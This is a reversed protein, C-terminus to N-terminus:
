LSVIIFIRKQKDSQRIFYINMIGYQIKHFSHVAKSNTQSHLHHHYKTTLSSASTSYIVNVQGTPTKGHIYLLEHYCANRNVTVKNCEVPKKISQIIWLLEQIQHLYPHAGHKEQFQSSLNKYITRRQKVRNNMIIIVLIM